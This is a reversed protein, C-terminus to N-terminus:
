GSSLLGAREAGGDDSGDAKGPKAGLLLADSTQRDMTRRRM